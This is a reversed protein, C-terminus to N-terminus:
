LDIAGFGGTEKPQDLEVVARNKEYRVKFKVTVEEAKGKVDVKVDSGQACENYLKNGQEQASSRAADTIGDIDKDSVFFMEITVNSSSQQFKATGNEQVKWSATGSIDAKEPRVVENLKLCKEHTSKLQKLLTAQVDELEDSSLRKKEAEEEKEKDAKDDKEDSKDDKVPAAPQTPDGDENYRDIVIQASAVVPYSLTAVLLIPMWKPAKM